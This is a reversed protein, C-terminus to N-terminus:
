WELGVRRFREELDRQESRMSLDIYLSATAIGVFGASVLDVLVQAAALVAPGPWWGTLSVVSVPVVLLAFRLGGDVIVMLVIVAVARGFNKGVLRFSRGIARIPNVTRDGISPAVLSTFVMVAVSGVVFFILGIAQMAKVLIWGAVLAPSRRLLRRLLWTAGRGAPLCGLLLPTLAAAVLTASFSSLMADVVAAEVLNPQESGFELVSGETASGTMWMRSALRAAALPLVLVVVVPLAIDPRSKPVDFGNDLVGPITRLRLGTQESGDHVVTTLSTLTPREGRVHCWSSTPYPGSM